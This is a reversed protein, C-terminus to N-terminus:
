SCVFTYAFMDNTSTRQLSPLNSLDEYHYGHGKWITALLIKKLVLWHRIEESIGELGAKMYNELSRRRCLFGQFMYNIKKSFFTTWLITAKWPNDQRMYSRWSTLGLWRVKCLSWYNYGEVWHTLFMITSGPSINYCFTSDSLILRGNHIRKTLTSRIKLTNSHNIIQM